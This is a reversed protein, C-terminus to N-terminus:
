SLKRAFIYSAGPSWEFAGDPSLELLAHTLEHEFEDVNEGLLERNCYSTTYLHGIIFPIDVTYQAEVVNDDFASFGADVLAQVFPVSPQSFTGAGARRDTGMWSQVVRVVAQEWDSEGGWISRMGLIAVGGDDTLLDHSATLTKPIDMWHLASAYTALRFTGSGRLSSIEEGPMVHFEAHTAGISDANLKAMEIMNASLDVGVIREFDVSLPLAIQGTGCGVDLLAGRGDLGFQDRIRRFLLEPYPKRYESYYSASSEFKDEM